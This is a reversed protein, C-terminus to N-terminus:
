FCFFKVIIEEVLEVLWSCYAFCHFICRYVFSWMILTATGMLKKAYYFRFTSNKYIDFIKKKKLEFIGSFNVGSGCSFYLGVGFVFATKSTRTIFGVIAAIFRGFHVRVFCRNSQHM